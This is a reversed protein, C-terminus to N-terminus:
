PIPQRKEQTEQQASYSLFSLIEDLKLLSSRIQPSCYELTQDAENNEAQSFLEERSYGGAVAARGGPQATAKRHRKPDDGAQIM